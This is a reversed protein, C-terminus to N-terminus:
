RWKNPLQTNGRAEIEAAYAMVISIAEVARAKNGSLTAADAIKLLDSLLTKAEIPSSFSEKPSCVQLSM